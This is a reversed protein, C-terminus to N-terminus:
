IHTGGEFLFTGEEHLSAHNQATGGQKDKRIVKLPIVPRGTREFISLLDLVADTDAAKM